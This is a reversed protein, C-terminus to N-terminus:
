GGLPNFMPMDKPSVFRVIILRDQPWDQLGTRIIGEESSEGKKLLVLQMNLNEQTKLAAAELVELRRTINM